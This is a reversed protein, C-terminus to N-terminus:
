KGQFQPPRKELFAMVGEKFDDTQILDEQLTAEWTLAQELTGANMAGRIALKSHALSLPAKSALQAAFDQVRDEFGDVGYVHNIMGWAHAQEAPVRQGTFAMELARGSGVLRPLTFTGGGDPILAINVFIEAFFARPTALRIDAALAIDSGIGAAAGDVAAIVPLTSHVMALVFPHYHEILVQRVGRMDGGMRPALAKLDAGACFSGGNGTIVIVRAGEGPAAEVEARMLDASEPAIANKVEPRNFRIWKVGDRLESTVIAESTTQAMTM